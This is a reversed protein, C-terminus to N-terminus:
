SPPKLPPRRRGHAHRGTRFPGASLPLSCFLVRQPTRKLSSPPPPLAAVWSAPTTPLKPPLATVLEPLVPAGMPPACPPPTRRKPVPCRLWERGLRHASLTGLVHRKAGAGGGRRGGGGRAIGHCPPGRGLLAASTLEGRNNHSDGSPLIDHQCAAVPGWDGGFTQLHACSRSPPPFPLGAAARYHDKSVSPLAHPSYCPHCLPTAQPVLPSPSRCSPPYWHGQLVPPPRRMAVTRKAPGREERWSAPQKRQPPGNVNHLAPSSVVVCM